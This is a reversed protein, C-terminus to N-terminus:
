PTAPKASSSPTTQATTPSTGVAAGPLLVQVPPFPPAPPADHKCDKVLTVLYTIALGLVITGVSKLFYGERELNTLRKSLAEFSHLEGSIANIRDVPFSKLQTGGKTKKSRRDLSSYWILFCDDGQKMHVSAPGANFVAFLLKGNYGPDVHFGSVNVLGRFKTGARMSIFAIADDPVTVNEETLLFAFQGSPIAFSEGDTLKRATREKANSTQDTPSVYIERGISLRYSACDVADARYPNILKPLEELLKEGSWFSM